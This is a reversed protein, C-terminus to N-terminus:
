NVAPSSAASRERKVLALLGAAVFLYQRPYRWDPDTKRGWSDLAERAVSRALPSWDEKWVDDNVQVNSLVQLYSGLSWVRAYKAKLRLWKGGRLVCQDLRTRPESQSLVKASDCHGFPTGFLLVTDKVAQLSAIGREQLSDIIFTQHLLDVINTEASYPWGVESIYQNAILRDYRGYERQSLGTNEREFLVLETIALAIPNFVRELVRPSYFPLGTGHGGGCSLSPDMWSSMASVADARQSQIDAKLSAPPSDFHQEFKRLGLAVIATTVLYPESADATGHKFGLGWGYGDAFPTRTKALRQVSETAWDLAKTRSLIGSTVADSVGRLFVGEAMPHMQLRSSYADTGLGNAGHHSELLKLALLKTDKLLSM